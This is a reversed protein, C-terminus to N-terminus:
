PLPRIGWIFGVIFAVVAGVPGWVFISSMAAELSRDHVNSSFWEILFYGAFAGVFYGGIAYLLAIGLRRIMALKKSNRVWGHNAPWVSGTTRSLVSQMQDRGTLALM